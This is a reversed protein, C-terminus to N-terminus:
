HQGHAAAGAAIDRVTATVPIRHRRKASDEVILVLKLKRGAVLPQKLDFLMIHYGGPDLRVPKGEPLALSPVARMKMMGNEMKMQHVQATGAAASEVGTLRSNERAVIEMYVGGVTQGPVTARAWPDGIQLLDAAQATGALLGILLATGYCGHRLFSIM